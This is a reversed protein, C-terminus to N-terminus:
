DKHQSKGSGCPYMGPGRGSRIVVSSSGFVEMVPPVEMSGLPPLGTTVSVDESGSFPAHEAIDVLVTRSEAVEWFVALSGGNTAMM